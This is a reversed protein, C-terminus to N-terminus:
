YKGKDNNSKPNEKHVKVLGKAVLAKEIFVFKELIKDFTTFYKIQIQSMLDNNLNEVFM